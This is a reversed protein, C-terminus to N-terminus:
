EFWKWYLSRAGGLAKWRDFSSKFAGFRDPDAHIDSLLYVLLAFNDPNAVMARVAEKSQAAGFSTSGEESATAQGHVPRLLPSVDLGIENGSADLSAALENVFTEAPKASVPNDEYLFVGYTRSLRDLFTQKDAPEGANLTTQFEEMLAGWTRQVRKSSTTAVFAERILRLAIHNLRVLYATVFREYKMPDFDDDRMVLPIISSGVMYRGNKQPDSENLFGPGTIAEAHQSFGAEIDEDRVTSQIDSVRRIDFASGPLASLIGGESKELYAVDTILSVGELYDLMNQVNLEFSKLASANSEGWALEFAQRTKESYSAKKMVRLALRLVVTVESRAANLNRLLRQVREPKNWLGMGVRDPEVASGVPVPVTDGVWDSYRRRLAQLLGTEGQQLAFYNRDHNLKVLYTANGAKIYFTRERPALSKTTVMQCFLDPGVPLLPVHDFPTSLHVANLNFPLFMNDM